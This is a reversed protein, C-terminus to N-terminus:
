RWGTNGRNPSDYNPEHDAVRVKLEKYYVYISGTGASHVKVGNLKELLQQITKM